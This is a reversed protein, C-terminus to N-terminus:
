APAWTDLLQGLRELALTWTRKRNLADGAPWYASLTVITGDGASAFDIQIISGNEPYTWLLKTLPDFEEYVARAVFTGNNEADRVVTIFEGGLRPDITCSDLSWREDRWWEQFKNQDTFAAFVEERPHAYVVQTKWTFDIKLKDQDSANETQLTAPESEVEPQNASTQERDTNSNGNMFQFIRPGSLLGAALITFILVMTVRAFSFVKRGQGPDEEKRGDSVISEPTRIHPLKNQRARVKEVQRQIALFIEEQVQDWEAPSELYKILPTPKGPVMQPKSLLPINQWNCHGVLIPVVILSGSESHKEILPLETECIFDSNLFNRSVLLVAIQAGEVADIIDSKWADGGGLRGKDYWVEVGIRKLSKILRPMLRGDDFWSADAHSYSVFVVVRDNVASIGSETSDAVLNEVM